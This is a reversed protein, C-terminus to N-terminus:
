TYGSTFTILHQDRQKPALVSIFQTNIVYLAKLKVHNEKGEDMLWVVFDAIFLSFKIIYCWKSTVSQDIDNGGLCFL